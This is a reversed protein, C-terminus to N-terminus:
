PELFGRFLGDSDFRAGKGDPATVDFGGFRNGNKITAGPDNLISDLVKQGQGNIAEPGGSVKPFASAPRGPPSHKQLARGARTLKGSRDAPDPIRGSDSLAQAPKGAITRDARPPAGESSAPAEASVPKEEFAQEAAAQKADAEATSRAIGRPAAARQEVEKGAAGGIEKGSASRRAARVIILTLVTIGLVVLAGAFVKAADELEPDTRAHVARVIGRLLDAVANLGALGMTWWAWAALGADAAEGVGLFQAIGLVVLSGVLIALGEGSVLSKLAEAVDKTLYPPLRGVMSELKQTNSWNAVDTGSGTSVTVLEAAVIRTRLGDQDISLVPPVVHHPVYLALLRGHEVAEAVRGALADSTLLQPSGPLGLEHWARRLAIRAADDHLLQRLRMISPRLRRKLRPDDRHIGHMRRASVPGILLITEFGHGLIVVDNKAFRGSM